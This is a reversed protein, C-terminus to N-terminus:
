SGVSILRSWKQRDVALSVLTSAEANDGNSINIKM